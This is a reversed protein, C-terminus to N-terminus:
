ALQDVLLLLPLANGERKRRNLTAAEIDVAVAAKCRTRPELRM